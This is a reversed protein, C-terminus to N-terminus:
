RARKQTPTPPSAPPQSVDSPPVHSRSGDSPPTPAKARVGERVSKYINRSATVAVPAFIMGPVGFLKLGAYMSVLTMLPSAGISKGVLRPEAIERIVTMVGFTCLLALGRATDGLILAGIGWPALIMGAGLVPLIDVAAIIFAAVLPYEVRMLLFAALLELFTMLFIVSYARLMSGLTGSLERRAASLHSRAGEPLVSVALRRIAGRDVAVYYASLALVFAYLFAGPLFGIVDGLIPLVRSTVAGLLDAAASEFEANVGNWLETLVNELEFFPIASDIRRIVGGAFEPDRRARDLLEAANQAIGSLEAYVRSVVLYCLSALLLICALVLAAAALKRPIHLKEMRRIVPQLLSAILYAFLFPSLAPLAYRVALWFAAAAFAVYLLIVPIRKYPEEPLM